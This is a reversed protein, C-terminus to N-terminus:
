HLPVSLASKPGEYRDMIIAFYLGRLLAITLDSQPGEYRDM